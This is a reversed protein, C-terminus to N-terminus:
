SSQAQRERTSRLRHRAAPFLAVLEGAQEASLRTALCSQGHSLQMRFVDAIAATTKGPAFVVEPFGCRQLRDLDVQAAPTHGTLPTTEDV